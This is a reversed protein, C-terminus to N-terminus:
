FTKSSRFNFINMEEILGKVKIIAPSTAVLINGDRGTMGSDEPFRWVWTMHCETKREKSKNGASNDERHWLIYWKLKWNNVMTLIEDHM